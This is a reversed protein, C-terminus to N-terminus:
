FSNILEEHADIELSPNLLDSTTDTERLEPHITEGLYLGNELLPLEIKPYEFEKNPCNYNDIVGYCNQIGFHHYHHLEELANATKTAAVGSTIATSTVGIPTSACGECFIIITLLYLVKM